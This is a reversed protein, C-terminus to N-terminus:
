SARLARLAAEAVDPRCVLLDGTWPREQNFRLESGDVHSVHLGSAVAVAVPAAADWEWLGGAHVYADAEGRVVAAVKAGASGMGVLEAGIAAAVLAASEPPRTRSVVIKATRASPRPPTGTPGTSLTQGLAPLAVAGAILVGASWLAVHVAWDSRGAEGFERTGDLPDVIWVRAAGLRALDDIAEESLVADGPRVRSLEDLLFRNSRRDGEAGVSEDFATARLALLLEGARTALEAAVQHDSSYREVM